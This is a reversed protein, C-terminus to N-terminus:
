GVVVSGVFRKGSLINDLNKLNNGIIYTKIKNDMIIKSAKQDLVFHQGPKFSKKNAMINFKKWSIKSILKANKYNLPNKDHLGLVNTINIFESKFKKASERAKIKIKEKKTLEKKIM